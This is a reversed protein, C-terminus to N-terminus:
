CNKTNRSHLHFFDDYGLQYFDHDGSILYVKLKPHKIRIYKVCLAIIDDGEIEAKKLSFITKNKKILNPILTDYTYKFTPKFNKKKSLDVRGGKYNDTLKNRWIEDQPCDM